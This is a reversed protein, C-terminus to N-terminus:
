THCQWKNSCAALSIIRGKSTTAFVIAHYGSSDWGSGGFYEVLRYSASLARLGLKSEKGYRALAAGVRLVCDYNRGISIERHIDTLRCAM